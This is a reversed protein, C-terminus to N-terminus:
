IPPILAIFFMLSRPLGKHGLRRALEWDFALLWLNLHCSCFKVIVDRLRMLFFCFDSSLNGTYCSSCSCSSKLIIKWHDEKYTWRGITEHFLRM